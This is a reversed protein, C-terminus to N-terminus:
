DVEFEVETYLTQLQLKLDIADISFTDEENLYEHLVWTNNQTNKKFCEVAIKESDVLIYETLSPLQRYLEFKGGKDYDRTSKSLIEIIVTPNTLTDQKNDTFKPRDCFITVDPYVYSSETKVEVRLDNSAVKCKKGKLHNYIEGSLANNIMVHNFSAGAMAFIEGKHYEHKNLAQREYALYEQASTIHKPLAEGM